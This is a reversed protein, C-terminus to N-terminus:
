FLLLKKGINKEGCSILSFNARFQIESSDKRQDDQFHVFVNFFFFFKQINKEIKNGNDKEIKEGINNEINKKM